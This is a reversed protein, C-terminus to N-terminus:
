AVGGVVVAAPDVAVVVAVVVAAGRDCVAGDGVVGGVVVAAPDGVIVVAVGRQRIRHHTPVIGILDVWDIPPFVLAAVGDTVLAWWGARIDVAVPHNADIVHKRNNRGPAAIIRICINITIASNADVIKKRDNTRPAGALLEWWGV